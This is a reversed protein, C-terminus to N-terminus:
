MAPLPSQLASQRLPAARHINLPTVVVLHTIVVLLTIVVLPIPVIALLVGLPVTVVLRM